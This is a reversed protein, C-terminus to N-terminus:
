YYFFHEIKLFSQGAYAHLRVRFPCDGKVDTGTITSGVLKYTYKGELLVVAHLPGPSELAVKTLVLRSPDLKGDRVYRSMPACDAPSATHVMDMFNLRRGAAEFVRRGGFSVEDLLGSGDRRVRFAMAGTDVTVGSADASAVIGKAAARAAVGLGYRLTLPKDEPRVQFDLLLWKVSKDPWFAQVKTQLPVERGGALLRVSRGDTLAGRALPVGGTVPMARGLKAGSFDVTLALEKARAAPVSALVALVGPLIIRLRM